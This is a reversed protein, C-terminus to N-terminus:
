LKSGGFRRGALALGVLALGAMVATSGGDPANTTQGAAFAFTANNSASPITFSWTGNTPDYGNGTIVGSGQVNLFSASQSVVSSTNLQFTFGGVTWFNAIPLGAGNFNWATTTMAVNNNVAITTALASGSTVTGVQVNQWNGAGGIVGTATGLNSSTLTATGNLNMIGTILAAQATGSLALATAAVSLFKIFSNKM